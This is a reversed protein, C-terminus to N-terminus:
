RRELNTPHNREHPFAPMYTPLDAEPFLLKAPEAGIKKLDEARETVVKNHYRALWNAKLALSSLQGQHKVVLASINRIVMLHHSLFYAYYKPEDVETAFARLYDVHWIGDDGQQMLGGVYESEQNLDHHRVFPLKGSSFENLLRPSVVVRPYVAIKSELEYAEIFAPGFIQDQGVAIDGITMGGRILIGQSILKSQAHLVDMLEYFVGSIADSPLIRIISDSFAFVKLGQSHDAETYGSSRRLTKIARDVEEPQRTAVLDRFGLIDIFTVIARFYMYRLTYRFQM